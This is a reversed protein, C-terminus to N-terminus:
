RRVMRQLEQDWFELQPLSLARLSVPAARQPLFVYITWILASVHFAGLRILDIDLYGVRSLASLLTAGCIDGGVAIGLGLAVGAPLSRWSIHFARTFLLLAVLLGISVFDSPLALMQFWSIARELQAQPLSAGCVFGFVILLALLWHLGQRFKAALSSRSLMLENAIEGLVGFQLIALLGTGTAIGWRYTSLSFFNVSSIGTLVVFEVLQYAFYTVLIPYRKQLGRRLLGFLCLALLLQPAFWLYYRFFHM